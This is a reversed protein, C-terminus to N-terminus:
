EIFSMMYDWLLQSMDSQEDERELLDQDDAWMHGYGTAKIYVVSYGSVSQYTTRVLQDNIDEIDVTADLLLDTWALLMEEVAPAGGWGFLETMTGDIPVVSDNTGHFQFINTEEQVDCTEWTEGSMLGSVSMYAKYVHNAECALTYTMFGGNSHGGVFVLDENVQYEEILQNTLSRLFGVDDIEEYRLNANWHNLGLAPTGEPYVLIVKDEDALEKLNTSEVFLEIMSGYGHLMMLMPSDEKVGSPVYVYYERQLGDYEMTFTEDVEDIFPVDIEDDDCATVLIMIGILLVIWMKKM